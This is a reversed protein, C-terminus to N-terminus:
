FGMKQLTKRLQELCRARTPGIAGVSVNMRQAIEAYPVPPDSHYLWELLRRCREGLEETARRVMQQEELRLLEEQPLPGRAASTAAPEQEATEEASTDLPEDRGRLRAVRWSEHKATLVLWGTLHQENRLKALNQLLKLCVTQFVDAADDESLGCRLPIAYILREYRHLLTEWAQRDGAECARILSRDQETL